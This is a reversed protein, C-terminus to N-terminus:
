TKILLTYRVIKIYEKLQNQRSISEDDLSINPILPFGSLEVPRNQKYFFDYLKRLFTLERLRSNIAANAYVLSWEFVADELFHVPMDNESEELM